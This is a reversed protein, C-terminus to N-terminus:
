EMPHIFSNFDIITEFNVIAKGPTFLMEFEKYDGLEPYLELLDLLVSKTVSESARSLQALRDLNAPEGPKLDKFIIKFALVINSRIFHEISDFGLLRYLIRMTYTGKRQIYAYSSQNYSNMIDYEYYYAKQLELIPDFLYEYMTKQEEATKYKKLYKLYESNYKGKNFDEELNICLKNMTKLPTTEFLILFAYKKLRKGFRLNKRTEFLIDQLDVLDSKEVISMIENHEKKNSNYIALMILLVVLYGTTSLGILISFAVNYGLFGWLLVLLLFLLGWLTSIFIIASRLSKQQKHTENDFLTTKM